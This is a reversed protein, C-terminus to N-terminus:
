EVGYGENSLFHFAVELEYIVDVLDDELKAGRFKGRIKDMNSFVFCYYRESSDIWSKFAEIAFNKRGDAIYNFLDEKDM